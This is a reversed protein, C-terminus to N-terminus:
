TYCRASSTCVVHACLPLPRSRSQTTLRIHPCPSCLSSKVYFPFPMIRACITTRIKTKIVAAVRSIGMLLTHHTHTRRPLFRALVSFVRASRLYMQTQKHSVDLRPLQPRLLTCSSSSNSSGANSVQRNCNIHTGRLFECVGCVVGCRVCVSAFGDESITEPM